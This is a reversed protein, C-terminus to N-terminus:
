KFFRLKGDDKKKFGGITSGFNISMSPRKTLATQIVPELPVHPNRIVNSFGQSDEM